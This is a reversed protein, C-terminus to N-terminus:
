EFNLQVLDYTYKENNECTSFNHKEYLKREDDSIFEAVVGMTKNNKAIKIMEDIVFKDIVDTKAYDDIMQISHIHMYKKHDEDKFQFQYDEPKLSYVVMGIVCKDVYNITAYQIYWPRSNIRTASTKSDLLQAARWLGTLKKDDTKTQEFIGFMIALPDDLTKEINTISLEHNQITPIPKTPPTVGIITKKSQKAKSKKPIPQTTQERPTEDVIEEVDNQKVANQQQTQKSMQKRTINNLIERQRTQEKSINDLAQQHKTQKASLDNIQKKLEKLSGADHITATLNKQQHTQQQKPKQPEQEKKAKLKKPTDWDDDDYLWPYKGKNPKDSDDVEFLWNFFMRILSFLGENIQMDINYNNIDERIYKKLGKM